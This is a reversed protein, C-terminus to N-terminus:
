SSREMSTREEGGGAVGVGGGLGLPCLIKLCPIEKGNRPV